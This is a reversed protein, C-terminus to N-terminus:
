LLKKQPFRSRRRHSPVTSLHSCSKWWCYQSAQLKLKEDKYTLMNWYFWVPLFHLKTVFQKLSNGERQLSFDTHFPDTITAPLTRNMITAATLNELAMTWTEDSLICFDFSSLLLLLLDWITHIWSEVQREQKWLPTPSPSSSSSPVLYMVGAQPESSIVASPPLEDGIRCRSERCHMSYPPPPLACPCVHLKIFSSPSHLLLLLPSYSTAACLHIRGHLNNSKFGKLCCLDCRSDCRACHIFSIKRLYRLFWGWGWKLGNKSISECTDIIFERPIDGNRCNYNWKEM